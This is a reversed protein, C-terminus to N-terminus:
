KSDIAKLRRRAKIKYRPLKYRPKVELRCGLDTAFINLKEEDERTVLDCDIITITKLSRNENLLLEIVERTVFDSFALELYKLNQLKAKCIMEVDFPLYECWLKLYELAPSSLLVDWLVRQMTRFDDTMLRRENHSVFFDLELKKLYLFSSFPHREELQTTVIDGCNDITLSELKPCYRAIPDVNIEVTNGSIESLTLLTLSSGCAELLPVIGGDFTIDTCVCSFESLKKLCLLGQLDQDTIFNLFNLHVENVLLLPALLGLSGIKYPVSYCGICHHTSGLTTLSFRQINSEGHLEALIQIHSCFDFVKLAPLNELAMLIGQKSVKTAAINLESISKCVGIVCLGNIGDDTLHCGEADM